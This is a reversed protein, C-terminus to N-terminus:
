LDQQKIIEETIKVCKKLQSIHFVDHVAALRSPLRIRYAVPGCIEVTEFPGDHFIMTTDRDHDLVVCHPSLLLPEFEILSSSTQGHM